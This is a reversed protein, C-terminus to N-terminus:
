EDTDGRVVPSDQYKSYAWLGGGILAVPVGVPIAYKLIWEVVSLAQKGTDGIQKGVDAVSSVLDVTNASFATIARMFEDGKGEVQMNWEVDGDFPYTNVYLAACGLLLRVEKITPSNQGPSFLFQISEVKASVPFSNPRFALMGKGALIESIQAISPANSPWVASSMYWVGAPVKEDDKLFRMPIVSDGFFIEQIDLSAEMFASIPEESVLLAPSGLTKKLLTPTMSQIQAEVLGYFAKYNKKAPLYIKADQILTVEFGTANLFEEASRTTEYDDLYFIMWRHEDMPIPMEMHMWKM